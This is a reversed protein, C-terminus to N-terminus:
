RSIQGMVNQPAPLCNMSWKGIITGDKLLMAGGYKNQIITNLTSHDSGMAEFGNNQLTVVTSLSSPLPSSTLLVARGGSGIVFAALSELGSLQGSALERLENQVAILVYGERSLLEESKDGQSSIMPIGTIAPIDAKSNGTTRTDVFEWKHTDYWTTDDIAFERNKGTAIEKYILMTQLGASETSSQMAQPINVGTKYPTSDVLPLSYSSYSALLLSLPVIIFLVWAPSGKQRFSNRNLFLIVAFPLLIINKIFTAWNSIKIVDGFCGCDSVPNAVAIWLTLLTFGAMSLFTAWSALWKWVGTLLMLGLLLELAPLLIGGLDALPRLFDLGMASLYDGIQLSFGFPNLSKAAGSFIYLLAMVYRSITALTDSLRSSNM